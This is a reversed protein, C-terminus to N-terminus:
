HISCDQREGSPQASTRTVGGGVGPTPMGCVTVQLITTVGKDNNFDFRGHQWSEQYSVGETERKYKNNKKLAARYEYLIIKVDDALKSKFYNEM